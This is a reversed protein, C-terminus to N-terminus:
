DTSKLFHQGVRYFHSLYTEFSVVLIWPERYHDGGWTQPVTKDTFYELHKGKNKNYNKYINRIECM